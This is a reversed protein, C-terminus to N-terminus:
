AAVGAAQVLEPWLVAGTCQDVADWLPQFALCRRLARPSPREVGSVKPIACGHAATLHECSSCTRGPELTVWGVHLDGGPDPMVPLAPRAAAPITEHTVAVVAASFGTATRIRVELSEAVWAWVEVDQGLTAIDVRARVAGDPPELRNHRRAAAMAADADIVSAFLDPRLRVAAKWHLVVLGAGALSQTVYTCARDANM